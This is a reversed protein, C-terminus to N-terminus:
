KGATSPSPVRDIVRPNHGKRWCELATYLGAPGAGVILVSIGTLPHRHVESQANPKLSITIDKLFAMKKKKSYTLNFSALGSFLPLLSTQPLAQYHSNLTLNRITQHYPSM